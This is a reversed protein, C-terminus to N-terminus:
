AMCVCEYTCRIYEVVVHTGDSEFGIYQYPAILLRSILAVRSAAIGAM